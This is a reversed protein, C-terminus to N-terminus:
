LEGVVILLEGAILWDLGMDLGIAFLVHCNWALNSMPPYIM